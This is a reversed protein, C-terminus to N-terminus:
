RESEPVIWERVLSLALLSFNREREPDVGIEVRTQSESDVREARDWSRTAVGGPNYLPPNLEDGDISVSITDRNGGWQVWRLSQRHLADSNEFSEPWPVEWSLTKGPPLSLRVEPYYTQQRVVRRAEPSPGEGEVSIVWKAAQRPGIQYEGVWESTPESVSLVQSSIHIEGDVQEPKVKEIGKVTLGPPLQFRLNGSSEGRANDNFAVVVVQSRSADYAAVTWLRSDEGQVELLRGRLDRLFQLTYREGSRHAAHAARSGIKDPSVELAHLIDRLGYTMTGWFEEPTSAHYRPQAHPTPQEPDLFGGTETNYVRMSRGHTAQTFADAVEYSGVVLRTDTGYHHETIGDIRDGFQELLPRHLLDWARWGDQHLHFDWGVLLKAEPKLEEWEEVLVELMQHYLKRNWPGSWWSPQQTDRAWWFEALEMERGRFDFTNGAVPERGEIRDPVYRSALYHPNGGQDVARLVKEWVLGEVPNGERDYVQAGVERNKDSYFRGDFNVGPRSAWNLYPENWFEFLVPTEVSAVNQSWARLRERFDREWSGPNQLPLAPQYRDYWCEIISSLGHPRRGEGTQLPKGNPSVRLSRVMEVGWKERLSEGLSTAHVGFVAKPIETQGNVELFNGSLHIEQGSLQGMWFGACLIIPFFKRM